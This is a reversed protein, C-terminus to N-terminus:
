GLLTQTEASREVALVVLGMDLLGLQVLLVLPAELGELAVLAV